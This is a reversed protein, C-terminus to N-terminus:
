PLAVPSPRQRPRDASLLAMAVLAFIWAAFLTSALFFKPQSQAM